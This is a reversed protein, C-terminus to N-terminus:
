KVFEEGCNGCVYKYESFVMGANLFEEQYINGSCGRKKCLYITLEKFPQGNENLEKMVNKLEEV